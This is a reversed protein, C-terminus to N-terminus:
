KKRIPIVQKLLMMGWALLLSVATVIGWLCFGSVCIHSCVFDIILPHLCYVTESLNRFGSCTRDPLKFQRVSVLWNLGTYALFPTFLLYSFRSDNPSFLRLLTAEVACVASAAAFRFILKEKRGPKLAVCAGMTLLPIARLLADFAIPVRGALFAICAIKEVGLWSYSYTLCECLWLLAAVGAMKRIDMVQLLLYLVPVAYVLALLYWLHYQTGVFFFSAIADKIVHLGWWGTSYWQPIKVLCLYVISWFVYLCLIRKTYRILRRHNEACWAIKGNKSKLKGFFLFGSIAFFLPVAVRAIVNELYFQVLPHANQAPSTHIVVILLACVMRAIDLNSYAIKKDNASLYKM